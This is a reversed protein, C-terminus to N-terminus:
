ARTVRLNQKKDRSQKSKKRKGIRKEEVCALSPLFVDVGVGGESGERKKNM